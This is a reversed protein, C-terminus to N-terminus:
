SGYMRIVTRVLLEESWKWTVFAPMSSGPVGSAEASLYGEVGETRLSDTSSAASRDFEGGDANLHEHHDHQTSEGPLDDTERVALDTIM